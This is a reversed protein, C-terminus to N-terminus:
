CIGLRTMATLELEVCENELDVPADIVSNAPSPTWPSAWQPAVTLMPGTDRAIRCLGVKALNVEEVALEEDLEGCFAEPNVGVL